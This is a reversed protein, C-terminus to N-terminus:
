NVCEAQRINKHFVEPLYLSIYVVLQILIAVVPPGFGFFTPLIGLELLLLAIAGVTLSVITAQRAVIGLILPLVVPILLLLVIGTGKSALPIIAGQCKPSLALLGLAVILTFVVNRGLARERATDFREAGLFMKVDRVVVSAATMLQSDITSMGAAFTAVVILPLAYPLYDRYLTPVFHDSDTLGPVLAIGLMGMIMVSFVLVSSLFAFVVIGKSLALGSEAMYARQWLHPLLISGFSWIAIMTVVPGFTDPQLEFAEPRHTVAAQFGEGIGGLFYIAAGAGLGIVALFITGQLIDTWIIARIGGAFTYFSTVLMALFVGAWYPVEGSTSSDIVKGVGVFQILSYPILALVCIIATLVRVYQSQYLDALLDAPTIYGHQRSLLWFKRGIFWALLPAILLFTGQIMFWKTGQSYFFGPAGLFAFTSFWTAFITLGLHFWSVSRNALFYDDSTHIAKRKALLGLILGCALYASLCIIIALTM